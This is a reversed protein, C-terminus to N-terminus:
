YDACFREASNLAEELSGFIGIRAERNFYHSVECLGDGVVLLPLIGRGLLRDAAADVAPLDSLIGPYEGDINFIVVKVNTPKVDLIVSVFRTLGVFALACSLDCVKTVGHFNM